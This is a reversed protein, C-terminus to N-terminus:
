VKLSFTCLFLAESRKMSRAAFSIPGIILEEFMEEAEGKGTLEAPKSQITSAM